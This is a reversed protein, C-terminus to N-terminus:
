KSPYTGPSLHRDTMQRATREEQSDEDLERLRDRSRIAEPHLLSVANFRIQM